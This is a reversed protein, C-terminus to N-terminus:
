ESKDGVVGIEVIKGDVAKLDAKASGDAHGLAMEYFLLTPM